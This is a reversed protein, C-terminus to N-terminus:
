VMSLKSKNSTGTLTPTRRLLFSWKGQSVVDAKLLLEAHQLFCLRSTKALDWM